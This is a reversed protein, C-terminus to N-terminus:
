PADLVMLDAQIVISGGCAEDAIFPSRDNIREGDPFRREVGL